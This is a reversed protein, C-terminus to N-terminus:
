ESMEDMGEMIKSPLLESIQGIFKGNEVGTAYSSNRNQFLAIYGIDVVDNPSGIIM